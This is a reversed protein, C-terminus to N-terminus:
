RQEAVSGRLPAAIGFDGAQRGLDAVRQPCINALRAAGSIRAGACDLWVDDRLPFDIEGGNFWSCGHAFFL